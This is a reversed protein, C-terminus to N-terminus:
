VAGVASPLWVTSTVSVSLAPLVLFALRVNVSSVVMAWGVTAKLLSVPM